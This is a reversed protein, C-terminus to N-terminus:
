SGKILGLSVAKEAASRKSPAELKRTLREYRSRVRSVTVGLERAAEEATADERAKELLDLDLDDLELEELSWNRLKADWWELLELAFARMLTRHRALCDRAHEVPESTGLYLVGVRVTAVSHAPVVIGSRFGHEAASAMMREQGASTLPIDSALVANTNKLAYDIFPDIAYWKNGNYLYCWQPVCGVLYRYDERAGTRFFAGFVFSELGFYHVIQRAAAEVEAETEYGGIWSIRHSADGSSGIPDPAEDDPRGDEM